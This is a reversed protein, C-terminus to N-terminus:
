VWGGGGEGESGGEENQLFELLVRRGKLFFITCIDVLYPLSDEICHPSEKRNENFSIIQHNM